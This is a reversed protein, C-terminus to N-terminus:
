FRYTLYTKLLSERNENKFNRVGYGDKDVYPAEPEELTNYRQRFFVKFQFDDSFYNTLAVYYKHGDGEMQDFNNDDFNWMSYGDVQWLSFGTNISFRSSFRYNYFTSALKGETRGGLVNYNSGYKGEVSLFSKHTFRNMVRFTTMKSTSKNVHNKQRRQLNQRLRFSIDMFPQFEIEAQLRDNEARFIEGDYLRNSNWMDYYAHTLRLMRHFRVQNVQFYVGAESKMQVNAVPPNEFSGDATNKNIDRFQHEADYFTHHFRGYGQAFGRAYPNDYAPNYNRYKILYNGNERDWRMGVNSASGGGSLNAWEGFMSYQRWVFQFDVSKINRNEGSWLKEVDPDMNAPPSRLLHRYDPNFPQDYGIRIGGLGIHSGELGDIPLYYKLYTGMVTEEFADKYDDHITNSVSYYYANISGDPNLIGDKKDQSYYAYVILDRFSKEIGIGFLGFQKTPTLDSFLGNIRYLQRTSFLLDDEYITERGDTSDMALGLGHSMKFSGVVVKDLNFENNAEVSFKLLSDELKENRSKEHLLGVQYSRYNARLRNLLRYSADDRDDAHFQQRFTFRLEDPDEVDYYTAYRSINRYGWFSLGRVGRFQRVGTIPGREKIHRLVAAADTPSVNPLRIFDEFRMTNVNLPSLALDELFDVINLPLNGEDLLNQITLMVQFSHELRDREIPFMSVQPLLKRYTPIDVGEVDLLEFPSTFGDKEFVYRYLNRALDPTVGDLQEIEYLTANNIDLKDAFLGYVFLISIVLLIIIKKMLLEGNM